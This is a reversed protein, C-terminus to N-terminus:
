DGSHQPMHDCKRIMLCRSSNAKATDKAHTESTHKDKHCCKKRSGKDVRRETKFWGYDFAASPATSSYKRCRQHEIQKNFLVDM